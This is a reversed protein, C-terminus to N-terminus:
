DEIFEFSIWQIDCVAEFSDKTKILVFLLIEIM